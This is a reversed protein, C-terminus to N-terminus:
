LPVRFHSEKGASVYKGGIAKVVAAIESFKKSGLFQRPKVITYEGEISFVLLERMNQPFKNEVNQLQNSSPHNALEVDDIDGLDGIIGSLHKTIIGIRAEVLDLRRELEPREIM